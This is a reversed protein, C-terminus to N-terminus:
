NASSFLTLMGGLSADTAAVDAIFKERYFDLDLLSFDGFNIMSKSCGEVNRFTDM